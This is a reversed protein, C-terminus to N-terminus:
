SGGYKFLRVAIRGKRTEGDVAEIRVRGMGRLSILAGEDVTADSRLQQAQDVYVMGRAIQESAASRSLTFGAAVIADLRMSAITARFTRGQPPPLDPVGDVLRAQVSVRGASELSRVIYDATEPEAFVFACGEALVIDGMREREFGLAMLAGLIDRHEPSGFQKRWKLEVPQIAWMWMEPPEGEYFAGMRREADPYGGEMALLVGAERAAAMAQQAQNLDMFHTFVPEGRRSARVALERLRKEFLADAM